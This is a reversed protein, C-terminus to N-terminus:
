VTVVLKWINIQIVADMLNISKMSSHMDANLVAPNHHLSAQGWKALTYSHKHPLVSRQSFDLQKGSSLSM